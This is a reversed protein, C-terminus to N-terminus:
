TLQCAPTLTLSEILNAECRRRAEAINTHGSYRLLGIVLNNITAMARCANGRTLRTADEHFTVDRRHQLGNEIGWYTRSLYLLTKASAEPRSLSTLGCVIEQEEKGSKCDVRRRDLKIVQEL